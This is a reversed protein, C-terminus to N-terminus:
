ECHKGLDTLDDAGFADWEVAPDFVDGSNTDGQTISCKRRLTHDQTTNPPTGWYNAPATGLQGIVDMVNAGCKLVQADNGNFSMSSPSQQCTTASATASSCLVYTSGPQLTTALPFDSFFSGDGYASVYCASLDVPASGANYVELATYNHGEVYESFILGGTETGGTGASGAVGGDGSAGGDGSTGADGSSAGTGGAGNGGMAGTGGMAGAGGRAGTGGM